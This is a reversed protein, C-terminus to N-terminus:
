SSPLELNVINWHTTTFLVTLKKNTIIKTFLIEIKLSFHLPCNQLRIMCNDMLGPDGPNMAGLGTLESVRIAPMVVALRGFYPFNLLATKHLM